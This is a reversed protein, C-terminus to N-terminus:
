YCSISVKGYFIFYNSFVKEKWNQLNNFVVLDMAMLQNYFLLVRSRLLYM